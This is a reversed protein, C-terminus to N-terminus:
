LPSLFNFNQFNYFLIFTNYFNFSEEKSSDYYKKFSTKTIILKLVTLLTSSCNLSSRLNLTLLEVIHNNVPFLYDTELEVVRSIRFFTM